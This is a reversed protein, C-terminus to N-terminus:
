QVANSMYVNNRSINMAGTMFISKLLLVDPGTGLELPVRIDDHEFTLVRDDTEQFHRSAGERRVHLRDM